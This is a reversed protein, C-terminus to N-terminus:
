AGGGAARREIEAEAVAFGADTPWWLCRAEPRWVLGRKELALLHDRMANTSKIGLSAMMGGRGGRFSPPCMPRPRGLLMRLLPGAMLVLVELQRPTPAESRRGM